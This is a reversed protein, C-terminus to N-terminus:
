LEGKAGRKVEPLYLVATTGTNEGESRLWIKGGHREVIQKVIGLGLGSGKINMNRAEDVRYFSDFVNELEDPHIGVGNDSIEAYVGGDSIFTKVYLRGRGDKKYKIANDILNAFVRGMQEYDIKVLVDADNFETLLTIDHRELDMKYESCFDELYAGLSGYEFRFDVRSLELKSFTSLNSVMDDIIEAKQYITDLYRQLKEPTDAVGDRIGDIYGKISTVPTKLDHSLNALLMSRERKMLEEKKAAAKLARRMSDFETCLKDVEDYDSGMVEFGLNGKRVCEAALTLSDIPRKISRSILMTVVTTTVIMILLSLGIWLLAVGIASPNEQFFAGIARSLVRPNILAARPLHLEEVPYKMVFVLLFGVSVVGILIIPTMLMIINYITFRKRITM